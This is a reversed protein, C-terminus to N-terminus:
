RARTTRSSASGPSRPPSNEAEAETDGQMACVLILLGPGTQGVLEATWWRPAAHGAPDAGERCNTGGRRTPARASVTVAAARVGLDLAAEAGRDPLGARVADASLGRMRSGPWFARTSRTARAWPTWSRPRRAHPPPGSRRRWPGDRGRGRPDRARARPGPRADGRGAGSRRRGDALRPGRRLGERCRGAVPATGDPRPLPGRRRHFRPPHQPRAHRAQGAQSMRAALAAYAEACPEVALSIGGFFGAECTEPIDPLDAESVM